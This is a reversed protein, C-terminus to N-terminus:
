VLRFDNILLDQQKVPQSEKKGSKAKAEPQKATLELKSAQPKQQPFLNQQANM